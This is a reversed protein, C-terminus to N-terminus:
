LKERSSKLAIEDIIIWKSSEKNIVIRMEVIKGFKDADIEGAVDPQDNTFKDITFFGNEEPVYHSPKESTANLPQKFKIQLSADYLRDEQNDFRGSRVYYGYIKTAEIFVISIYDGKSPARRSWFYNVGLYVDELKHNEYADLSSCMTAPPNSNSKAKAQKRNDIDFASDKLTQIKGHLSSETGVHQFLSPSYKIRKSKKQEICESPKMYPACLKVELVNEYLWDCPKNRSFILFFNIFMFLDKSNFLKGIFGLESFEIIIWEYDVDMGDLYNLITSVFRDKAVM